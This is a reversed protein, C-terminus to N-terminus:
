QSHIGNLRLEVIKRSRHIKIQFLGLSDLIRLHHNVSSQNLKSAKQVSNIAFIANYLKRIQAKIYFKFSVLWIVSFRFRRGGKVNERAFRVLNEIQKSEEFSFGYIRNSIRIQKSSIVQLTSRNRDLDFLEAFLDDVNTFVTSSAAIPPNLLATDSTLIISPLGLFAGELGGTSGYHVVVDADDLSDYFNLKTDTALQSAEQGLVNEEYFYKRIKVDFHVIRLDAFFKEYLAMNQLGLQGQQAISKVVKSIGALEGPDRSKPNRYIMNKFDFNTLVLIRLKGSENLVRVQRRNKIYEFRMNGVISVQNSAFGALKAIRADADHWAFYHTCYKNALPSMTLPIDSEADLHIGEEQHQFIQFGRFKMLKLANTFTYSSSKILVNGPKSFLAIKYLESHQFIVVRSAVKAIRIAAFFRSRLERAEVEYMLYFPRWEQKSSRVM